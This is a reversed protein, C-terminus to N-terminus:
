YIRELINGDTKYCITGESLTLLTTDCLTGLRDLVSDDPLGYSNEGVSVIAIEPAVEKLFKYMSSTDSGHHGVKYISCGEDGTLYKLELNGTLDGTILVSCNGYTIKYCACSANLDGWSNDLAPEAIIEMTVDGLINIRESQTIKSADNELILSKIESSDFSLDLYLIRDVYVNRLLTNLGNVHDDNMHTFALTDIIFINNKHLYNILNYRKSSTGGYDVIVAHNGRSIVTCDGQGVDIFAIQVRDSPHVRDYVLGFLGSFCILMLFLALFSRRQHKLFDYLAVGLIALMLILLLVGLLNIGYVSAFSIRGFLNAIWKVIVYIGDCAWGFVVGVCPIWGFIVTLIGLIFLCQIPFILVANAIPAILSFSGFVTITIVSTALSAAVSCAIVGIVKRYVGILRYDAHIKKPFLFNEIPVYLLIIGATASVSLLFGVDRVAFPNFLVILFASVSLATLSDPFLDLAMALSFLTLMICARVCSVPFGVLATFVILIPIGLAYRVRYNVNFSLLIFNFLLFAFSLHLGSVAMVHSLGARKLSVYIEPDLTNKDGFCISKLFGNTEAKGFRLQGQVTQRVKNLASIVDDAKGKIFQPNEKSYAGFLVRDERGSGFDIPTDFYEFRGCIYQGVSYVDTINDCYLYIRARQFLSVKEGDIKRLEVTYKTLDGASNTGHDLVVGTIIPPQDASLDDSIAQVQNFSFFSVAIAAVVAIVCSVITARFPVRIFVFPIMVLLLIPILKWLLHPAFFSCVFVAILFSFLVYTLYRKTM